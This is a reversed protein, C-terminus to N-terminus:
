LPWTQPNGDYPTGCLIWPNWLPIRGAQLQQHLFSLMPGFYLGIDGWYLARGAVIQPRFFLLDLAAFLASM